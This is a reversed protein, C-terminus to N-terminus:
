NKADDNEVVAYGCEEIGTADIICKLCYPSENVMFFLSELGHTPCRPVMGMADEGTRWKSQLDDLIMCIRGLFYQLNFEPILVTEGGKISGDDQRIQVPVPKTLYPIELRDLTTKLNEIDQMFAALKFPPSQGKDTNM